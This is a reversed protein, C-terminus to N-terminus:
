LYRALAHTRWHAAADRADVDDAATLDWWVQFPDAVRITVGRWRTQLQSGIVVPDGTVHVALVAEQPDTVQVFPLRTTDLASTYLDLRRPMKWPHLADLAVDGSVWWDASTAGAFRELVPVLDRSPYAWFTSIPTFQRRERWADMLAARSTVVGYRGERELLGDQKLRKFSQSVFPQSVRATAAIEVQRPVRDPALLLAHVVRSLGVSWLQAAVQKTKPLAADRWGLDDWTAVHLRGDDTVYSWGMEALRRATATPLRRLALLTPQPARVIESPRPPRSPTQFLLDLQRRDQELRIRKGSLVAFGM